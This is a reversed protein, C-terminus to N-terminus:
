YDLFLYTKFSVEKWKREIIDEKGTGPSPPPLDLNPPPEPKFSPPPSRPRPSKTKSKDKIKASPARGPVLVKTRDLDPANRRRTRPSVTRARHYSVVVGDESLDKVHAPLAPQSEGPVSISRKVLPIDPKPSDPKDSHAKHESTSKHSQCISEASDKIQEVSASSSRSRVVHTECEHTSSNSRSRNPTEQETTSGSDSGSSTYPWTCSYRQKQPSPSREARGSSSDMNLRRRVESSTSNSSTDSYRSSHRNTDPSSSALSARSSDSLASAPRSWSERDITSVNLLVEAGVSNSRSTVRSPTSSVSSLLDTDSLGKGTKVLEMCKQIALVWNSRIGSTM